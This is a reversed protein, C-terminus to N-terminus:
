SACFPNYRREEGITTSDGHGPYAKVDDPLVMLKERLSRGLTDGSGTPLDTRGVSGAFLTDGCLLLGEEAFYYCCSGATHGPTEIMKCSIGGATVMEGDTLYVDAKVTYPRGIQDSCNLGADECLAQEAKSAYVRVGAKERLENVGMIHDFHGHTLLIAAVEIGNKTLKDYIGAGDFAPDIVLAKKEEEDYVFYCNTSVMGLVTRGIKLNGM